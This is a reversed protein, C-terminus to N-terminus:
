FYGSDSWTLIVFSKTNKVVLGVFNTKIKRFNGHNEVCNVLILLVAVSNSNKKQVSVGPLFYVRVSLDRTHVLCGSLIELRAIPDKATPPPPSAPIGAARAARGALSRSPTSHLSV